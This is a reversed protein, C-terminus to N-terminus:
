PLKELYKGPPESPLSDDQLGPFRLEIGANPLDGPSPFTLVNLYEQWFFVHVSSGPLSCDRPDGLTLCLQAVLM